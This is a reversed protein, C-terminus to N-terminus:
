PPGTSDNRYLDFHSALVALFSKPVKVMNEIALRMDGIIRHSKKLVTRNFDTICEGLMDLASQKQQNKDQRRKSEMAQLMTYTM